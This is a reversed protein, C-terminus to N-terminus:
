VSHPNRRLRDTASTCQVSTKSTTSPTVFSKPRNRFAYGADRLASRAKSRNDHTARPRAQDIGTSLRRLLLAASPHRRSNVRIM